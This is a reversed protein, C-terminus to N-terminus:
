INELCDLDAMNILTTDETYLVTDLPMRSKLEIRQLCPSWLVLEKSRLSERLIVINPLLNDDQPIFWTLLTWDIDPIYDFELYYRGDAGTETEALVLGEEFIQVKVGSLAAGSENEISGSLVGPVRDMVSGSQAFAFQASSFLLMAMVCIKVFDRRM